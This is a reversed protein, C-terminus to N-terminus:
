EHKFNCMDFYPCWLNKAYYECPKKQFTKSNQMCKVRKVAQYEPTWYPSVEPAPGALQQHFHPCRKGFSCFGLQYNACISRETTYHKYACDQQSCYQGLPCFPMKEYDLMHLFECNVGKVCKNKLWYHCVVKKHNHQKADTQLTKPEITDIILNDDM